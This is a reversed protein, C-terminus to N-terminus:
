GAIEDVSTADNATAAGYRPDLGVLTAALFSAAAGVTVTLRAFRYAGNKDLDEQRLNVVAQKNDDGSAKTLQTIASGAVDKAGAGTGDKAQEIKADVTGGAGMTGVALIALLAFHRQMDMWGTTITGAGASQPNIVALVGARASPNLNGNM